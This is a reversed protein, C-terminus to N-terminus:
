FPQVTAKIRQDLISMDNIARKLDEKTAGIVRKVSELENVFNMVNNRYYDVQRRLENVYNTENNPINSQTMGRLKNTEQEYNRVTNQLHMMQNLQSQLHRNMDELRMKEHNLNQYNQDFLDKM